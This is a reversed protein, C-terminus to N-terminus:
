KPIVITRGIPTFTFESDFNDAGIRVNRLVPVNGYEGQVTGNQEDVYVVNWFDFAVSHDRHPCLYLYTWPYYPNTGSSWSPAGFRQKVDEANFDRSHCIERVALELSDFEMQTLIRETRLYGMRFAVDAYVSGTESNTPELGTRRTFAGGVGTATFAGRNRLSDFRERLEGDREDVYALHSLLQRAAIEGGFMGLRSLADNLLGLFYDHIETSTKM